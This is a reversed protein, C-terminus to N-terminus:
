CLYTIYILSRYELIGAHQSHVAHRVRVQTETPTHRGKIIYEPKRHIVPKHGEQTGLPYVLNDENFIYM